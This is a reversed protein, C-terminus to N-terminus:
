FLSLNDVRPPKNVRGFLSKFNYQKFLASLGEIKDKGYLSSELNFNVPVDYILTALKQSLYANEKDKILKERITPKIETLHKYINELSQYKELLSVASKPGIGAVGPYNDSADGMLAKLDVVKSPIVGLNEKVDKPKIIKVISLGQVPMFLEIKDNKRVGLLGQWSNESASKSGRLSIAIYRLDKFKKFTNNIVKEYRSKEIDLSKKTNDM